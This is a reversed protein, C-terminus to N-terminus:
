RGNCKHIKSNGQWCVIRERLLPKHELNIRLIGLVSLLVRDIHAIDGAM